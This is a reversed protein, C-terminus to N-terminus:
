GAMSSCAATRPTVAVATAAKRCRGALGGHFESYSPTLSLALHPICSGGLPHSRRERPRSHHPAHQKGDDAEDHDAQREEHDREEEDAASSAPPRADRDRLRRSSCARISSSNAAPPPTGPATARPPACAGARCSRRTARSQTLGSPHVGDPDVLPQPRRPEELRAAGRGLGDDAAADMHVARAHLRGPRGIPSVTSTRIPWSSHVTTTRPSESLRPGAFDRRRQVLLRGFRGGLPRLADDLQLSDRGSPASRPARGVFCSRRRISCNRRRRATLPKLREGPDPLAVEDQRVAAGRELLEATKEDAEREDGSAIADRVCHSVHDELLKAGVQELATKVAAIQTLIDICYRDDEVMREIGRVQGEIRHLRKVLLDKDKAYGHM